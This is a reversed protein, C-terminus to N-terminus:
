NRTMEAPTSVGYTFSHFAGSLRDPSVLALEAVGVSGDYATYQFEAVDGFVTGEGYASIGFPSQEEIVAADGFQNIVYTLGNAGIWTGGFDAVNADTRGEDRVDAELQEVRAEVQEQQEEIDDAVEAAPAAEGATYFRIEGTRPNVTDIQQGSVIAVVVVAVILLFGGLAGWKITQGFWTRRRRSDGAPAQAATTAPQATPTNPPHVHQTWQQGDWYRQDGDRGVPDPYWGPPTAQDAGDTM